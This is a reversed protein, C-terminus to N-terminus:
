IHFRRGGPSEIIQRHLILTRDIGLARLTNRFRPGDEVRVITVGTPTHQVAAACPTGQDTCILVRAAQIIQPKGSADIIELRM